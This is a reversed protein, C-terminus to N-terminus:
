FELIKRSIQLVPVSTKFVETMISMLGIKGAKLIMRMKRSKMKQKKTIKKKKVEKRKKQHIWKQQKFKIITNKININYNKDKIEKYINL